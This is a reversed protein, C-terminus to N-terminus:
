QSSIWPCRPDSCILAQGKGARLAANRFEQITDSIDEKSMEKPVPDGDEYPIASPAEIDVGKAKCKRGGHNLQIGIRAGCEHVARVIESL